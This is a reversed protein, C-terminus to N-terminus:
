AQRDCHAHYHARVSNYAAHRSRGQQPLTVPLRAGASPEFVARFVGGGINEVTYIGWEDNDTRVTGDFGAIAPWEAPKPTWSMRPYTM